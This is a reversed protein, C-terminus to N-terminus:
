CSPPQPMEPLPCIMPNPVKAPTEFLRFKQKPPGMYSANREDKLKDSNVM